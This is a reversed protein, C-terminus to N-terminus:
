GHSLQPIDVEIRGRRRAVHDFRILRQTASVGEAPACQSDGNVLEIKRGLAGGGANM